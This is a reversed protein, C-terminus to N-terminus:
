TLPGYIYVNQTIKDTGAKYTVTYQGPTNFDVKSADMSCELRFGQTDTASVVNLDAETIILM